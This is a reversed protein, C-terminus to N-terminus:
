HFKYPRDPLAVSWPQLDGSQQIVQSPVDGGLNQFDRIMHMQDFYGLEHAVSLWSRHPSLRKTDLAGQFRLIRAFLKPTIGIETTFRREYHRLSLGSHHALNEIRLTGKYRFMHRASKMIPTQARANMAFPLLYDEAVKIQQEFNRSEALRLWLIYIGDGLLDRGDFDANALTALPIRFLQWSALPKLFIGFAFHRGTFYACGAPTTQSGAVHIKPALKSGGQAYETTLSDGFEFAMIHELLALNPQAYVAGSWIMERLAFVRVFERLEARPIATQITHVRTVEEEESGRSSDNQLKCSNYARGFAIVCFTANKSPPM